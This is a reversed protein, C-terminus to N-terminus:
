ADEGMELDPLALDNPPMLADPEFQQSWEALPVLFSIDLEAFEGLDKSFEVSRIAGLNCELVAGDEFEFTVKRFRLHRATAMM